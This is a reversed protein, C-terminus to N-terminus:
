AGMGPSVSRAAFVAGSVFGAWGTPALSTVRKAAGTTGDCSGADVTAAPGAGDTGAIIGTTGDCSGTDVTTAAAAGSGSRVYVSTAGAVGAVCFTPTSSSGFGSRM